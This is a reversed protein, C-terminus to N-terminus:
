VVSSPLLRDPAPSCLLDAVLYWYVYAIPWLYVFNTSMGVVVLLAFILALRTRGRGLSLIVLWASFLLFALLAVLGFSGWLHLYMNDVYQFERYWPFLPWRAALGLFTEYELLRIYGSELSFARVEVDSGGMGPFRSLISTLGAADAVLIGTGAVLAFAILRLRPLGRIEALAATLMIATVVIGTKSGSLVTVACANVIAVSRSLASGRGEVLIYYTLLAVMPSLMNPSVFISTARYAGEVFFDNYIGGLVIVEVYTLVSAIVLTARALPLFDIDRLGDYLVIVWIPLSYTIV